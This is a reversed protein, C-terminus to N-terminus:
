SLKKWADAIRSKSVNVNRDKGHYLTPFSLFTEHFSKGNGLDSIKHGLQKQFIGEIMQIQQFQGEGGVDGVGYVARKVRIKVIGAFRFQQFGPLFGVHAPAFDTRKAKRQDLSLVSGEIKFDDKLQVFLIGSPQQCFVVQGQSPFIDEAQVQVTLEVPCRKGTDGASRKAKEGHVFRHIVGPIVFNCTKKLAFVDGKLGCLLAAAWPIRVVTAAARIDAM